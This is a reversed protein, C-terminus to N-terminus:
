SEGPTLGCGVCPKRGGCRGLTASRLGAGKVKGSASALISGGCVLLDRQWHKEQARSKERDLPQLRLTLQPCVGTRRLRM